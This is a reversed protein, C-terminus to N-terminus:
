PLEPLSDITYARVPAVRGKVTMEALFRSHCRGEVHAQTEGSVVLDVGLEKSASELRSALNVADGIVTYEMRAESGINGAVLEGTHLGIGIRLTPKGASALRENLRALAARMKVAARVARLADDPRSVPAGFVAMIADGIYKDVVGGEQMIVSVMETFYENLLSVLAHAEMQESITTFSRIDAFLVTATLTEGGLHVKGSLLHELVSETMYKGFTMRLNDRERLGEVMTNFGSALDELEDGTRVGTVQVYDSVELRKMAGGIRVIAASMTRAIRSGVLLALLAFVVILAAAIGLNRRVIEHVRTVDLALVLAVDSHGMARDTQVRDVAWTRGGDEFVEVETHARALLARPFHSTHAHVGGADPDVVALELGLKKATRNVLDRDLPLCVVVVGGGPLRRAEVFAPAADNGSVECGNTTVGRATAHAAAPLVPMGVLDMLTRPPASDGLQVFLQGQRDFVLLDLEPYTDAFIHLEALAAGRDGRGLAAEIVQSEDLARAAADVERLDDHLEQDLGRAAAPVREDLMQELQRDMTLGLTVLAGLSALATMAVLANLKARVSYVM